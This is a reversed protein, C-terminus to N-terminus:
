KSRVQKIYDLKMKQIDIISKVNENVAQAQSIYGPNEQIKAINEKLIAILDDAQSREQEVYVAVQKNEDIVALGTQTAPAWYKLFEEASELKRSFETVNTKIIFKEDDIKYDLVCHVQAAYTFTNGKMHELRDSLKKTNM